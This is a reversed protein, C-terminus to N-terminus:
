QNKKLLWKVVLYTVPFGILGLIALQALDTLARQVRDDHIFDIYSNSSTNYGTNSYGCGSEIYQSKLNAYSREGRAMKSYNFFTGKPAWDYDVDAVKDQTTKSQEVQEHTVVKELETPPILIQCTAVDSQNDQDVVSLQILYYGPDTFKHELSKSGVLSTGDDIRWIYNSIKDEYAKSMSADLNLTRTEWNMNAAFRAIPNFKEPVLQSARVKILTQIPSLIRFFLILEAVLFLGTVLQLVYKSKFITALNPLTTTSQAFQVSERHVIKVAGDAGKSFKFFSFFVVAILLLFLIEM